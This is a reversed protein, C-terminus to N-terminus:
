AESIVPLPNDKRHLATRMKELAKNQLQRIRERTLGFDRGIEELNMPKKGDLGFRAGIIHSEREDLLGLLDGLQDTSNKMSLAELPSTASEDGITEGVTTKEGDVLPSDLSTTRQSARRLASLKRLPVGTEDSLEEDSPQRGLDEAMMHEIRRMRAIKQVMHVPLRVTKGQNALARKISQKIWWAAYSSLKAGRDPDFRDVAKTLGINGESILDALAVGYGAYDNAIKVVLRLNARIMKERAAEDGQGIQKALSIEEEPSLLPTKSIDNLYIRLNQDFDSSPMTHSLNLNLTHKPWKPDM